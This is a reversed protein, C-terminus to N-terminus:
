SRDQLERKRRKKSFKTRANKGTEYTLLVTLAAAVGGVIPIFLAM